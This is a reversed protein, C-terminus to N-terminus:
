QLYNEQLRGLGVGLYIPIVSDLVELDGGDILYVMLVCIAFGTLYNFFKKM